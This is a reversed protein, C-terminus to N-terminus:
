TNKYHERIKETAEYGDMIPMNCDMFIIGYLHKKSAQLAELGNRSTDILSDLSPDISNLIVRVAILNFPEDDVILIRAYQQQDLTM